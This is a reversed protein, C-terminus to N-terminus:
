AHTSIEKAHLFIATQLSLRPVEAFLYISKDALAAQLRSFDSAQFAKDVLEGRITEQGIKTKAWPRKLSFSTM